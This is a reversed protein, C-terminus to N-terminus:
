GGDLVPFTMSTVIENGTVIAKDSTSTPSLKSLFDDVSSTIVHPNASGLSGLVHVVDKRAVREIGLGQLRV